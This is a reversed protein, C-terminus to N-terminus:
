EEGSMNPAIHVSKIGCVGREHMGSRHSSFVQTRSHLRAGRERSYTNQKNQSCQVARSTEKNIERM